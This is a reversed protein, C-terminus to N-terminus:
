PKLWAIADEKSNFVRGFVGRNVAVTEGFINLDNHEAERDVFAIKLGASGMKPIASTVTFIEETTPQNPFDEEVLLSKLGRKHCEDIVRRWYELAAAVSDEKGSILAYLYGEGEQYQIEFTENTDNSM